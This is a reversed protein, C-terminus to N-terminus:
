TGIRRRKLGGVGGEEGAGAGACAKGCKTYEDGARLDGRSGGGGARRLGPAPRRRRGSCPHRRGGRAEAGGDTAARADSAGRRPQLHRHCPCRSRDRGQGSGGADSVAPRTSGSIPSPAPSSRPSPGDQGMKAVLIRPRRGEERAFAECASPPSRM